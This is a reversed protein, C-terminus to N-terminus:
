DCATFAMLAAPDEQEAGLFGKLVTADGDEEAEPNEKEIVIHRWGDRSQVRIDGSV